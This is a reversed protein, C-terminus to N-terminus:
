EKAAAEKAKEEFSKLTEDVAKLNSKCARHAANLKATFSAVDRQTYEGTPKKPQDPCTRIAPSVQPVVLRTVYVTETQCATLPAAFCTLLLGM